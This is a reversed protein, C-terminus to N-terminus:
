VDMMSLRTVVGDAAAIVPDGRIADFDVGKHPAYRSGRKPGTMSGYYSLITTNDGAVCGVLIVASFLAVSLLAPRWGDYRSFRSLAM